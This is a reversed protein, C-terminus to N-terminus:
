DEFCQCTYPSCDFPDANNHQHCETSCMKCQMQCNYKDNGHQCLHQCSDNEYNYEDIFLYKNVFKNNRNCKNM